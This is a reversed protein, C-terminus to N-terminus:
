PRTSSTVSIRERVALLYVKHLETQSWLADRGSLHEEDFARHPRAGDRRRTDGDAETAAHESVVSRFRVPLPYRGNNGKRGVTALSNRLGARVTKGSASQGYPCSLDPPQDPEHEETWSTRGLETALCPPLFRCECRTKKPLV